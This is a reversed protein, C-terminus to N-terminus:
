IYKSYRDLDKMRSRPLLGTMNDRRLAAAFGPVKVGTTFLPRHERSIRTITPAVPAGTVDILRAIQQM